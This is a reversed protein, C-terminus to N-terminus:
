LGVAGRSWRLVPNANAIGASRILFNDLHVSTGSSVYTPAIGFYQEQRWSGLIVKGVRYSTASPYLNKLLSLM